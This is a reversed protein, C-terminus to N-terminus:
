RLRATMPASLSYNALVDWFMVTDVDGQQNGNLVERVIQLQSPVIVRDIM